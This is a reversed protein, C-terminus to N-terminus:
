SRFVIRPLAALGDRPQLKGHAIRSLVVELMILPVVTCDPVLNPAVYRRTVLLPTMVVRITPELRFMDLVKMWNEKIWNTRQTLKEAAPRLPNEITKALTGSKHLPM